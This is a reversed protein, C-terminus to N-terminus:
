ILLGKDDSSLKYQQILDSTLGTVTMGLWKENKGQNVAAAETDTPMEGITVNLIKEAGDRLVKVRRTFPHGYKSESLGWEERFRVHPNGAYPEKGASVEDVLQTLGTFTMIYGRPQCRI